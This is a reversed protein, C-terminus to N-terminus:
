EPIEGRMYCEAQAKTLNFKQMIGQCIQEEAYQDERRIDIYELIRWRPEGQQIGKQIGRNEVRDLVECMNKKEGGGTEMDHYADEFRTDQTLVAM